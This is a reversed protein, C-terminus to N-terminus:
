RPRLVDITNPYLQESDRDSDGGLSLLRLRVGPRINQLLIQRGSPLALADRYNNVDASTQVFQVCGDEEIELTRRLDEPVSKWLLRAGPPVCIAPVQVENPVFEFLGKLLQWFTQGRLPNKTVETACLDASCALGISGTSFRHVVLEEGEIGLRNPLGGLSYDCM